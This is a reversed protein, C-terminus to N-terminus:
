ICLGVKIAEMEIKRNRKESFRKPMYSNIVGPPLVRPDIFISPEFPSKKFPTNAVIREVGHEAGKRPVAKANAKVEPGRMIKDIKKDTPIPSAEGNISVAANGPVTFSNGFGPFQIFWKLFNKPRDNSRVTKQNSLIKIWNFM